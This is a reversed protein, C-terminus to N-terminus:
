TQPGNTKANVVECGQHNLNEPVRKRLCNWLSSWHFARFNMPMQWPSYGLREYEPTRIIFPMASASLHPFDADIVDQEILAELVPGPTGLGGGRGVLRGTSREFVRVTHGERGLLIAASCGAISGGVIGITLKNM